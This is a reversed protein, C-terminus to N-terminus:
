RNDPFRAQRPLYSSLSTEETVSHELPQLVRDREAVIFGQPNTPAMVLNDGPWSPGRSLVEEGSGIGAADAPVLFLLLKSNKPASADFEEAEIGGPAPLEVFAKGSDNPLAGIHVREVDIVMMVSHVSHTGEGPVGFERGEAVESISGSIVAQSQAALERPGNAPEYKASFGEFMAAFDEAGGEPDGAEGAACACVSALVFAYAAASILWNPGRKLPARMMKRGKLM